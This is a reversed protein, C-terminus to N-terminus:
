QMLRLLEVTFELKHRIVAKRDQREFAHEMGEPTPHVYRESVTVSSHAAIKVITFADAGTEGLGSLMTHRLSHVVFEKSWTLTDDRAEEHQHDLSLEL